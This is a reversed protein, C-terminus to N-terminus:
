TIIILGPIVSIIALVASLRLDKWTKYEGQIDLSHDLQDGDLESENDSENKPAVIKIQASKNLIGTAMRVIISPLRSELWNRAYSTPAGIVFTEEDYSVFEAPRVWDDFAAKPIEMQLQSLVSQWAQKPNM